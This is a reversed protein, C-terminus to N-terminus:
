LGVKKRMDIKYIQKLFHCKMDFAKEFHEPLIVDSNEIAARGRALSILAMQFRTGSKGGFFWELNLNERTREVNMRGHLNTEITRDVTLDKDSTIQDSIKDLITDLTAWGEKSPRIRKRRQQQLFIGVDTLDATDEDFIIRALKKRETARLPPMYGFIHIRNLFSHATQTDDKLATEMWGVFTDKQWDAKVGSPNGLLVVPYENQEIYKLLARLKVGRLNGFEDVVFINPNSTTIKKFTNEIGRDGYIDRCDVYGFRGDPIIEKYINSIITKGRGYDGIINALLGITNRGYKGACFPITMFIDRVTDDPFIIQKKFEEQLLDITEKPDVRKDQSFVKMTKLYELGEPTVQYIAARNDTDKKLYGKNKLITIYYRLTSSPFHDLLKQRTNM